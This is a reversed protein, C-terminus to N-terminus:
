AAVSDRRTSRGGGSRSRGHPLRRRGCSTQSRQTRLKQRHLLRHSRPWLLTGGGGPPLDDLHATVIVRCPQPDVHHGRRERVPVVEAVLESSLNGYIGRVVRGGSQRQGRMPNEAAGDIPQAVAGM